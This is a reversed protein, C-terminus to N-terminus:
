FLKLKPDNSIIWFSQVGAALFVVMIVSGFAILLTTMDDM